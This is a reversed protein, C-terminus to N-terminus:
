SVSDATMEPCPDNLLDEWSPLDNLSIYYNVGTPEWKGRFREYVIGFSIYSGGFKSIGGLILCGIPDNLGEPVYIKQRISIVKKFCETSPVLRCLNSLSYDSTLRDVFIFEGYAIIAAQVSSANNNRKGLFDSILCLDAACEDATNEGSSLVPSHASASFTLLSAALCAHLLWQVVM